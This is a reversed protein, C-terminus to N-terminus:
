YSNLNYLSHHYVDDNWNEEEKLTEGHKERHMKGFPDVNWRRGNEENEDDKVREEEKEEEKEEDLQWRKRRMEKRM